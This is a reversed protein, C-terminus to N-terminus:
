GRLGAPSVREYESHNRAPTGPAKELRHARYLPPPSPEPLDPVLNHWRAALESEDLIYKTRGSM